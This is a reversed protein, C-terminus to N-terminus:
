DNYYNIRFNDDNIFGINLFIVINNVVFENNNIVVLIIEKFWIMDGCLDSEKRIIFDDLLLIEDIDIKNRGFLEGRIRFIDGNGKKLVMDVGFM